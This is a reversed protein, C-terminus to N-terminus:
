KSGSTLSKVAEQLSQRHQGGDVALRKTLSMAEGIVQESYCHYKESSFTSFM